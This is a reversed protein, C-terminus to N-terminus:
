FLMQFCCGPEKARKWRLRMLGLVLARALTLCFDISPIFPGGSDWGDCYCGQAHPSVQAKRLWALGNIWSGKPNLNQLVATCLQSPVRKLLLIKTKTLQSPLRQWSVNRIKQPKCLIYQTYSLRKQMSFM